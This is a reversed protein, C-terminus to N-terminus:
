KNFKFRIDRYLYCLKKLWLRYLLTEVKSEWWSYAFGHVAIAQESVEWSFTPLRSFFLEPAHITADKTDSDKVIAQFTTLSEPMHKSKVVFWPLRYERLIRKLVSSDRTSSIVANTLSGKFIEQPLRSCAFSTNELLSNPLPKIAEMDTDLYTGGYDELIKIRLYDVVFAWQKQSECNKVWEPWLDIMKRCSEYDWGYVVYEPNLTRWKEINKEAWKPFSPEGVWVFHLNKPIM